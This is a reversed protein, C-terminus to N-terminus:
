RRPSWRGPCPCRRPAFKHPAPAAGHSKPSERPPRLGRLYGPAKSPAAATDQSGTTRRWTTRRTSPTSAPGTARVATAAVEAGDLLCSNQGPPSVMSYVLGLSGGLTRIREAGHFGTGTKAFKCAPLATICVCAHQAFAAGCVACRHRSYRECRPLRRADLSAARSLALILACLCLLLMRAPSQRTSRLRVSLCCFHLVHGRRGRIRPARAHRQMPAM